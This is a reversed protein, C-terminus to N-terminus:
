KKDTQRITVSLKHGDLNEVAAMNALNRSEVTDTSILLLDSGQILKKLAEVRNTGKKSYTKKLNKVHVVNKKDM